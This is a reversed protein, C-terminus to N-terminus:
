AERVFAACERCPSRGVTSLPEAARDRNREDAELREADLDLCVQARARLLRERNDPEGIPGALLGLLAHPAADV